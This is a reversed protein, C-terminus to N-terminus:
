NEYLSGKNLIQTNKPAYLFINNGLNEVKGGLACIAGAIFDLIRQFVAKDVGKFNLLAQNGTALFKVIQGLDALSHPYFIAVNNNAKNRRTVNKPTLFTTKQPKTSNKDKASKCNKEKTNANLSALVYKLFGM